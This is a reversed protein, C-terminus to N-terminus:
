FIQWVKLVSFFCIHPCHIVRGLAELLVCMVQKTGMSIFLTPVPLYAGKSGISGCPASGMKSLVCLLFEWEVRNYPYKSVQGTSKLRFWPLKKGIM